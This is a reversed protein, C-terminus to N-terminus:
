RRVRLKYEAPLAFVVAVVNSIIMTSLAMQVRNRHIWADSVWVTYIIILCDEDRMGIDTHIISHFNAHIFM